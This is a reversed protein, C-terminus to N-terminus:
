SYVEQREIKANPSALQAYAYIDSLHGLVVDKLIGSPAYVVFVVKQTGNTIRSRSDPGYIVSSIIGETDAIMMDGRKVIEEKGNMLVYKENGMGVDLKLPFKLTEYDHGATLLCNKLEAMFMAEVLGGADPISKGKFIISKLQQLVHYTKSYRKYYANYVKIAEHGSLEEENRFKERLNIELNCKRKELEICQGITFVNSLVMLGVCAGPYTKKWLETVYLKYVDGKKIFKFLM